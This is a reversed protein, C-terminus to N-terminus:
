DIQIDVLKGKNFIFYENIPISSSGSCVWVCDNGPQVTAWETGREKLTDLVVILQFENIGPRVSIM